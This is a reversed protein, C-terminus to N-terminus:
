AAAAEELPRLEGAIADDLRTIERAHEPGPDTQAEPTAEAAARRTVAEGLRREIGYKKILAGM